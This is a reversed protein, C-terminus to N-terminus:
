RRRFPDVDEADGPLVTTDAVEVQSVANYRDTIIVKLDRFTTYRAIGAADSKGQPQWAIVKRRVGNNEVLITGKWRPIRGDSLFREDGPGFPEAVAPLGHADFSLLLAEMIRDSVAKYATAGAALLRRGSPTKRGSHAANVLVMSRANGGQVLVVRADRITLSEAPENEDVAEPLAPAAGGEATTRSRADTRPSGSSACSLGALVAIFSLLWLSRRRSM